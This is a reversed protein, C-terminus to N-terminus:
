FGEAMIVVNIAKGPEIDEICEELGLMEAQRPSITLGEDHEFYCGNWSDSKHGNTIRILDPDHKDRGIAIQM